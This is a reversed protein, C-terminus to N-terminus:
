LDGTLFAAFSISISETQLWRLKKMNEHFLHSLLLITKIPVVLCWTELLVCSHYLLDQLSLVTIGQCIGWVSAEIASYPLFLSFPGAPPISFHKEPSTSAGTLLLPLVRCHRSSLATLQPLHSPGQLSFARTDVCYHRRAAQPTAPSKWPLEAIIPSWLSVERWAM